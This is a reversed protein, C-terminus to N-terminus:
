AVSCVPESESEEPETSADGASSDSSQEAESGESGSSDSGSGESGASDSGSSDSSDPESSEPEAPTSEPEASEAEPAESGGEAPAPTAPQDAAEAKAIEDAVLTRIAPLDPDAPTVKPPVLALTQLDHDRAKLALEAMNNVEATPIDTHVIGQGANAIDTFRTAVTLPDLQKLMANMVCKQREMREYDSSEARSRAVWLADEGNLTINEGPEIYRSIPAAGGGVPVAKNLNLRIGGVADVLNEFGALDVMAYYNIQLGVLEGVVERMAQLGPDGKSEDYLGPHVETAETYIGNIMCQEEACEFGNPYFQKLPSSDPFPAGQLNRPISILVSRGTEADISAVSISDPRLGVRDDGNDAGLLMVNIRGASHEVQGGGAFVSSLLAGQAWVTRATGISGVMCALILVLGLLAFGPRHKRALEPPRSIRWADAFLLAWGFGAAVVLLCLLATVPWFAIIAVTTGRFLTLGVLLLAILALMGLWCRIALLGLRREGAVLQASGPVLLTALLRGLGRRLRLRETVAEAQSSPPRGVPTRRERYTSRASTRPRSESISM